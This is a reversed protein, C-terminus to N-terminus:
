TSICRAAREGEREKRSGEGREMEDERGEEIRRKGM